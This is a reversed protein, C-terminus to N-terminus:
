GPTWEDLTLVCSLFDTVIDFHRAAQSSLLVEPPRMGTPHFISIGARGKGMMMLDFTNEVVQFYTNM